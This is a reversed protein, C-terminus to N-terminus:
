ASPSGHADQERQQQEQEQLARWLVKGAGSRPLQDVFEIVRPIKYAAMQTRAWDIISQADPLAAPNRAVIFAKVTEGRHTDPTGVVCAEQIEPHAFLMNEVEAPWVKFGAANIMRKLRDALYFYGDADVFGIDGTRLYRQGDLTIFAQANATPHQWYGCCLSPGRTVWEGPTGAPLEIGTDPDIVRTDVGPVCVGVSGLREAGVPNLHVAGAMETMGWGEQYQLGTRAQWRQAVAGPMATGGGGIYVLSSLDIQALEPLSLLDSVMTPVNTWHTVRRNDILRAAAARDWRALIVIRGGVQLPLNMSGVMGTVHFFPATALVVAGSHWGNWSQLASAAAQLARHSLMCGKPQGTTGSTYAILALDEGSRLCPESLPAAQLAQTMPLLGDGTPLPAASRLWEPVPPDSAQGPAPLDDAHNALIVHSLLGEQWLAQLQPWQEPAALAIRAGSDSAIWRLEERMNMPNVPVVVGDARLVAYYSIVFAPSNQLDILVRDGTQLGCQQRLHAALREVRAHLDAYSITTGFFDIATRQPYRKAAAALNDAICPSSAPSAARHEPFALM